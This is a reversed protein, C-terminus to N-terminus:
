FHQEGKGVDDNSVSMESILLPFIDLKTASTIERFITADLDKPAEARDTLVCIVHDIGEFTPRSGCQLDTVLIVNAIGHTKAHNIADGIDTGGSSMVFPVDLDLKAVEESFVYVHDPNVFVGLTRAIARCYPLWHYQSGSVDIYIAYDSTSRTDHSPNMSTEWLMPTHGQLRMALDRSSPRQPTFISGYRFADEEHDVQMLATHALPQFVGRVKQVSPVTTVASPNFRYANGIRSAIIVEAIYADLESDADIDAVAVPRLDSGHGASACADKMAVQATKPKEDDGDNNEVLTAPIPKSKGNDRDEEDMNAQEELYKRLAEEFAEAAAEAENAAQQLDQWFANIVDELRVTGALRPMRNLAAHYQEQGSMTYLKMYIDAINPMKNERLANAFQDPVLGHMLLTDFTLTGSFLREPLTSACYCRALANSWCQRALEFVMAYKPKTLDWGSPICTHATRNAVLRAREVLMLYALDHGSEIACAIAPSLIMRRQRVNFQVNEVDNDVVVHNAINLMRYLMPEDRYYAFFEIMTDTLLESAGDFDGFMICDNVTEQFPVEREQPIHDEIDM